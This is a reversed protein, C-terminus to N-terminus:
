VKTPLAKAKTRIRFIKEVPLVAIMGDGALGTHAANMIASVIGQVQDASAFIEIRSHTTTLWDEAFFDPHEGYGKIHSVSIGKVGLDRLRTLVDELSSNRIIATIKRLEM